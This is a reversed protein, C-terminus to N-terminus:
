PWCPTIFEGRRDRPPLLLCAHKAADPENIPFVWKRADGVLGEGRKLRTNHVSSRQPGRERVIRAVRGSPPSLHLLRGTVMVMAIQRVFKDLREQGEGADAM